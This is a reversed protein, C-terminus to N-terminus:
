LTYDELERKGVSEPKPLGVLSGAVCKPKVNPKWGFADNMEQFFAPEKKRAAGTKAQSDVFVKYNRLLTKWRNECQDATPHLTGENEKESERAIKIWISKKKVAVDSFQEDRASRAAILDITLKKSWSFGAKREVVEVEADSGDEVAQEKENSM